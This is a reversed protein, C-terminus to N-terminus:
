KRNRYKRMAAAGAGIALLAMTNPEPVQTLVFARTQGEGNLGFGVIQGSDNVDTAAELTWGAGSSDLLTSLDFSLNDLWLIARDANDHGVIEGKNNIGYAASAVAGPLVGLDSMIGGRWSFAHQNGNIPNTQSTGVVQKLNNIDYAISVSGTGLTGLDQMAGVSYLFAHALGINSFSLSADGAVDGLDNIARGESNPGGLTGLDTMLGNTYFFAHAEYDVATFTTSTTSAGTVQGFNNIDLAAGWPGGLTGLNLTAGNSWITTRYQQPGDVISGAVQGADNLGYATSSTGGSTGLNTTVGVGFLFARNQGVSTDYSYGSVQGSNNIGWAFTDGGFNGIETLSYIPSAASPPANLTPLLAM